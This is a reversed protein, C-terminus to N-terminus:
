TVPLLDFMIVIHGYESEFWGITTSLRVLGAVQLKYSAARRLGFSYFVGTLGVCSFSFLHDRIASGGKM